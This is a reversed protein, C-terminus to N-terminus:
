KRTLANAITRWIYADGKDRQQVCGSPRNALITALDQLNTHGRRMLQRILSFDYGSRSTDTHEPKGTGEWLDRLVGEKEILRRFWEPVDQETRVLTSPSATPHPKLSLLHDSLAGDEVRDSGYFRSSMRSGPKSTGYIKVRRTIDEIPDLAVEYRSLEARLEQEFDKRFVRLHRDFGPHETVSVPRLAFLLHYGRGTFARTPVHWGHDRHYEDIARLLPDIHGFLPADSAPDLDLALNQCLEIESSRAARAFGSQNM